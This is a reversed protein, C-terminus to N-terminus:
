KRAAVERGRCVFFFMALLFFHFWGVTFGKFFVFLHIHHHFGDQHTQWWSDEWSKLTADQWGKGTVRM